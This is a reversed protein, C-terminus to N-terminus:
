IQASQKELTDIIMDLGNEIKKGLMQKMLFNLEADLEIFFETRHGGMDLFNLTITFKIPSEVSDVM